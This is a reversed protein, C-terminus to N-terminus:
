QPPYEIWNIDGILLQGASACCQYPRWLNWVYDGEPDVRGNAWSILPEEIGFLQCETDTVPALMQWTGTSPDNEILPGPAWLGETSPELVSLPLYVHPQLLRTVIDGARQATIAAAKPEEPQIAWGSRPYVSGWTALPWNGIERQGPILSAPFLSEPLGTRWSLADIASQFYPVFSKAESACRFPPPLAALVTDLAPHGIADTERYILNKHDRRRSGETRNGSSDMVVDILSGLVSGAASQQIAGLVPQMERWPNDGLTNYSSVVLDPNYHGIKLSTEVRCGLVSCDLWFCLGVARWQACAFTAEATKALIDATHITAAGASVSLLLVVPLAALQKM